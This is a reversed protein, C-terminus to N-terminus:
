AKIDHGEYSCGEQSVDLMNAVSIGLSLLEAKMEEVLSAPPNPERTLIWLGENGGVGDFEAADVQPLSCGGDGQPVTPQGGIVAAATYRGQEDAKLIVPWYPGALGNPLFCPAVALKNTPPDILRACIPNVPSPAGNPMTLPNAIPGNVAGQNAQNYVSIVLGDWSPGGTVGAPPAGGTAGASPLGAMVGAPPGAGGGPVQLGELKYRRM